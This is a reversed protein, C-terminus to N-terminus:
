IIKTPNNTINQVIIHGGKSPAQREEGDTTMSSSGLTEEKAQYPLIKRKNKGLQIQSIKNM